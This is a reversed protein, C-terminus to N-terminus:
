SDGGGGRKPSLARRRIIATHTARVLLAAVSLVACVTLAMGASIGTRALISDIGGGKVDNAENGASGTADDTADGTADNDTDEHSSGDSADQVTFKWRLRLWDSRIADSASEDVSLSAHLTCANAIVKCRHTFTKLEQLRIRSAIDSGSADAINVRIFQEADEYEGDISVTAFVAEASAFPIRGTGMEWAISRGPLPMDLRISNEATQSPVTQLEEAHALSSSGAVLGFWLVISILAFAGRSCRRLWDRAMQPVASHLSDSKLSDINCSDKNYFDQNYFHLISM